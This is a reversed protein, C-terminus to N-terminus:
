LLGLMRNTLAFEGYQEIAAADYARAADKADSFRGIYRHGKGHRIYVQFTKRGTNWHVGKFGSTNRTSLGQNQIQQERTAGRLNGKRNNLPRRDRHDIEDGTIGHRAAIELHMYLQKGRGVNRVAYGRTGVFWNWQDLWARDDDDILVSAPIM